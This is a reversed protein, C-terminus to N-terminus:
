KFFDKVEDIEKRSYSLYYNNSEEESLEIVTKFSDLPTLVHSLPYSNDEINFDKELKKYKFPIETIISKYKGNNAVFTYARVIFVIENQSLYKDDIIPKIYDKVKEIIKDKMKIGDDIGIIFDYCNNSINNYINMAKEFSRNIVDGQEKKDIINDEIDGLSYFEYDKFLDTSLLKSVIKFKDRNRTAILTKKM